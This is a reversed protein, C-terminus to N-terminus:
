AARRNGPPRDLTDRAADHRRDSQQRWTVRILHTDIVEPEGPLARDLRTTYGHDADPDDTEDIVWNEKPLARFRLRGPRALLRPRGDHIAWEIVWVPRDAWRTRWRQMILIDPIHELALLAEEYTTAVQDTPHRKALWGTDRELLWARIYSILDPHGLAHLAAADLTSAHGALPCTCTRENPGCPESPAHVRERSLRCSSVMVHGAIEDAFARSIPLIQGPRLPRRARPLRLQTIEGDLIRRATHRDVIM